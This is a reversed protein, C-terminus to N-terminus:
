PWAVRATLGLGERHRSGRQKKSRERQTNQGERERHRAGRETPTKSSERKTGRHTPDLEGGAAKKERQRRTSGHRNHQIGERQNDQRVERIWSKTSRRGGTKKKKDRNAMGSSRRRRETERREQRGQVQREIERNKEEHGDKRVKDKGEESPSLAMTKMARALMEARGRERVCERQACTGNEIEIPVLHCARRNDEGRCSRRREGMENKRGERQESGARKMRRGGTPVGDAAGHGKTSPQQSVTVAPQLKSRNHKTNEGCM